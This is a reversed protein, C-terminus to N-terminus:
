TMDLTRSGSGSNMGNRVYQQTASLPVVRWNESLFSAALSLRGVTSVAGLSVARRAGAASFLHLLPLLFGGSALRQAGGGFGRRLAGFL